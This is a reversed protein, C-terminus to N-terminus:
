QHSSNLNTGWRGGPPRGFFQEISQNTVVIGNAVYVNSMSLLLQPTLKLLVNRMQLSTWGPFSTDLARFYIEGDDFNVLCSVTQVNGNQLKFMANVPIGYGTPDGGLPFSSLDHLTLKLTETFSPDNEVVPFIIGYYRPQFTVDQILPAIYSSVGNGSSRLSRDVIWILGCISLTVVILIVRNFRIYKM